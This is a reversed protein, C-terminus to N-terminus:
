QASYKELARYIPGQKTLQSEILMFSNGTWALPAPQIKEIKEEFEEKNNVYKIRAITLHSMFREERPFLSSLATDIKRQLDHTGEIKLWVIRPNNQYSFTGISKLELKLPKFKIYSLSAKVNNVLDPSIEGLFKLTLHLNEKEISKGEFEPLHKQIKVIEDKIEEPIEISIFTRM